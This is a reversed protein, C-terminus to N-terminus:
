EGFEGDGEMDDIDMWDDMDEGDEGDEVEEVEEDDGHVLVEFIEVIPLKYSPNIVQKYVQLEGRVVRTMIEMYHRQADERGATLDGPIIVGMWTELNEFAAMLSGHGHDGWIPHAVEADEMFSFIPVALHKIETFWKQKRWGARLADAFQQSRQLEEFNQIHIITDEPNYRIISQFGAPLIHKHNELYVERSERCASLLSIGFEDTPWEPLRPSQKPSIDFTFYLGFEEDAEKLNLEVPIFRYEDPTAAFLFIMRRLELPLDPFKKFEPVDMELSRLSHASFNVPEESPTNSSVVPASKMNAPTTSSSTGTTKSVKGKRALKKFFDSKGTKHRVANFHGRINTCVRVLLDPTKAM